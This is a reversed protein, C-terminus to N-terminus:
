IEKEKQMSSTRYDDYQKRLMKLNNHVESIEDLM